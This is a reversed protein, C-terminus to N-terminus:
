STSRRPGARPARRRRAFGPIRLPEAAAGPLLHKQGQPQRQDAVELPVAHLRGTTISSASTLKSSARASAAARTSTSNTASCGPSRCISTSVQWAWTARIKASAPACRGIASRGPRPSAACPAAAPPPAVGHRRRGGARRPLGTGRRDGDRRRRNGVIRGRAPRAKKKPGGRCARPASRSVAAATAGARRRLEDAATPAPLPSPSGAADRRDYPTPTSRSLSAPSRDRVTTEVTLGARRGAPHRPPLAPADARAAHRSLRQCGALPLARDPQRDALGVAPRATASRRRSSHRRAPGVIRGAM